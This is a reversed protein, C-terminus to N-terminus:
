FRRLPPVQLRSRVPQRLAHLGRRSLSSEVSITPSIDSCYLSFLPSLLESVVPVVRAAESATVGFGSALLPLLPPIIQYDVEGLLGICFLLLLTLAPRATHTTMRRALESPCLICAFKYCQLRPQRLAKPWVLNSEKSVHKLVANAPAFDNVTAKSVSVKM